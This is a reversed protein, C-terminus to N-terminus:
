SRRALRRRAWAVGFLGASLLALSAPEPVVVAVTGVNMSDFFIGDGSNSGSFTISTFPTSDILGFYLRNAGFVTFSGTYNTVVPVASGNSLQANLNLPAVDGAGGIAIGFATIPASFTFTATDPTAFYVSSAGTDSFSPSVGFFGPCYTTGACAFTGGAFSVSTGGDLASEFGEFSLGAGAAALFAADTNFTIPAALAPTALSAAFVAIAAIRTVHPLV